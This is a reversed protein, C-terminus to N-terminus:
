DSLHFEATKHESKQRGSRGGNGTPMPRERGLACGRGPRERRVRRRPVDNGPRNNGPRRKGRTSTELGQLRRSRSSGVRGPGAAGTARERKGRGPTKPATAPYTRPGRRFCGRPNEWASPANTEADLSRPGRVCPPFAPRARRKPVGPGLKDEPDRSRWPSSPLCRPGSMPPEPCDPPVGGRQCRVLSSSM